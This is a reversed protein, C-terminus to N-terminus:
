YKEGNKTKYNDRMNLEELTIDAQRLGAKSALELYHRATDYDKKRIAIAGRAYNAEPSDGAKKIYKDAGQLDGKRMAANAANLNAVADDPFMRVATEFVEAFEDSGPELESAAIYFERQDLKQPNERMVALIEAPDSYTRIVYNVRYDTHRLAPYFNQLMFKYDDPYLRKIRDEKADPDMDSDILAIIENKHDLNTEEVFKRLGAWDEPEYDTLMSVNEFHYLQQIYKKLAATRGIALDTNHKYPSEPSAFGKLWVTDIRADRDNRITDITERIKALEVTNRRYDPYIITQDVPFDIYARGELTRRKERNEQPQIYVLEPFFKEFHRGIEGYENLLINSCCGRDIRQLTIKAGDMWDQYEFLQHYDIASPKDKALYTLENKGSLMDDGNNRKYYYYRQRGYIAVAPLEISDNGNVLRPTLLVCQNSAVRLRDLGMNMDLTLYNGNRETQFGKIDVNDVIDAAVASLGCVAAAISFIISKKM